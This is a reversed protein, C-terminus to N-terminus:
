NRNPENGIFQSYDSCSYCPNAYKSVEQYKCTTCDKPLEVNKIFEILANKFIKEDRPFGNKAAWDAIQEPTM